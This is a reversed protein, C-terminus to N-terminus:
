LIEIKLRGSHIIRRIILQGGVCSYTFRASCKTFRTYNAGNYGSEFDGVFSNVAKKKLFKTPIYSLSLSLANPTITTM